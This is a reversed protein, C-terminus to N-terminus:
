QAESSLKHIVMVLFCGLGFSPTIRRWTPTQSCMVVSKVQQFHKVTFHVMGITTGIQCGATMHWSSLLRNGDCPQHLLPVYCETNGPHVLKSCETVCAENKLYPVTNFFANWPCSGWIKHTEQISGQMQHIPVTFKGESVGKYIHLLQM